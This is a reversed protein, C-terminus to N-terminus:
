ATYKNILDILEQRSVPKSLYDDMGSSVCKEHDEKLAHATIAIIPIKSIPEPMARIRATAEFGDMIPMQCDMLVVDYRKTRIQQIADQGNDVTDVRCGAKELIAIVVKQNVKNDEALLVRANPNDVTKKRDAEAQLQASFKIWLM